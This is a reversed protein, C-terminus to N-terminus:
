RVMGSGTLWAKWVSITAGALRGSRTTSSRSRIAGGRRTYPERKVAFAVQPHGLRLDAEVGFEVIERLQRRNDRPQESPM